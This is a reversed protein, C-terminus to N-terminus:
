RRRDSAPWPLGVADIFRLLDPEARFWEGRWRLAAFREHLAAELARAGPPVRTWIWGLPVLDGDPISAVLSRFRTVVNDASGIKVFREDHGVFYVGPWHGRKDEDPRGPPVGHWVRLFDERQNHAAVHENFRQRTIM